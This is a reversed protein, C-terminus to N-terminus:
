FDLEGRDGTLEALRRTVIQERSESRRALEERLKQLEKELRELHLQRRKQRVDFHKNALEQIQKKLEERQGKDARRYQNSAEYTKKELDQDAMELEYLEPDNKKLQEWDMNPVRGFGTEGRM